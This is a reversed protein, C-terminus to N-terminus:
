WKGTQLASLTVYGGALGTLVSIVLWVRRSYFVRSTCDFREFSTRNTLACYAGTATHVLSRYIGFRAASDLAVLALFLALIRAVTNM